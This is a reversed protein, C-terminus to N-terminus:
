TGTDYDEYMTIYSAETGDNKLMFGRTLIWRGDGSNSDPTIIWPDVATTTSTSNYRYISTDGDSDVVICIDGTALSYTTHNIADMAKATGGSVAQAAFIQGYAAGVQEAIRQYQADSLERELVDVRRSLDTNVCSGLGFLLVLLPLFVKKM